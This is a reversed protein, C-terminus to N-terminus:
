KSFNSVCQLALTVGDMFSADMVLRYFRWHFNNELTRKGYHGELLPKRQYGM